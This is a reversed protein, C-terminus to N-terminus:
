LDKGAEAERSGSAMGWFKMGSSDSRLEEGALQALIVPCSNHGRVGNVWSVASCTQGKGTAIVDTQDGSYERGASLVLVGGSPLCGYSCIFAYMSSVAPVRM